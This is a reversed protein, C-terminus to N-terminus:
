VNTDRVRRVERGPDVKRGNSTLLVCVCVSTRPARSQDEPGRNGRTVGTTQRIGRSAGLWVYLSSCNALLNPGIAIDRSCPTLEPQLQMGHKM